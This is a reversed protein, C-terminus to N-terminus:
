CSGHPGMIIDQSTFTFIGNFKVAFDSDTFVGDSGINYLLTTQTTYDNSFTLTNALGNQLGSICSISFDLKDGQAQNFDEIIDPNAKTSDAVRPDGTAFFVFKDAGLGGNLIDKGEKGVITDNGDNGKLNDDLFSGNLTDNGALGDFNNSVDPKGTMVDNYLSGHFAQIQDFTDGLADGTNSNGTADALDLTIDTSSVYYSAINYGPGGNLYDKGPGGILVDNGEQGYLQDDEWDGFLDDNGQGGYITNKQNNGVLIDRNSSGILNNVANYTDGLADGQNQTVDYLVVKVGATSTEYSAYNDGTGGDLIDAGPGGILTDNGPGGNLADNGEQGYLQDDEWDGFLDDNGQGGYIINKQNNGALIDRNSSGILNNVSSYTDGLADGQNQTIDYLVVKVGASSTEYSAYNDGTGGNLTDAGPGGILTDNGAGGNLQDNGEGGNLTDNLNGGNLTDNGALGDLNNSINAKGTMVDNYLSGHYAQIQDFTDGLADGTNSNGTADTLNLTIGASAVYFSAINYGPGGNLYDKGPGGILVDNGEQGYLQDDEWDGFLDDDGQGGYITNKQNNGVLIDRSSSGILSNVGNYTDGAADGQNQTVDYLVVKVGTISTEYSAIDNGYWGILRDAGPGGILIDNGPGGDIEDNGEGGDLYDDGEKGAIIDNGSLGYISNAAANGSLNDTGLYNISNNNCIQTKAKTGIINEINTLNAFSSGGFNANGGPGINVIIGGSNSMFINSFDITDIGAGGDIADKQSGISCASHTFIIKDNGNLAQISDSNASATINDDNDTGTCTGSSCLITAM